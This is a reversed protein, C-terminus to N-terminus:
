RPPYLKARELNNAIAWEQNQRAIIRWNEEFPPPHLPLGADARWDPYGAVLDAIFRELDRTRKFWEGKLRIAAFERHLEKEVTPAGGGVFMSDLEYPQGTQLSQLRNRLGRM